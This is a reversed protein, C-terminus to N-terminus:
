NNQKKIKEWEEKQQRIQEQQKAKYQLWEPPYYCEPMGIEGLQEGIALLIEYEEITSPLVEKVRPYGHGMGGYMIVGLVIEPNLTFIEVKTKNESISDLHIHFNASYRLPKGRKYYIKSDISSISSLIADNVNKLEKFVYGGYYYDDRDNFYLLGKIKYTENAKKLASKVQEISAEFIYSTPNPNALEKQSYCGVLTITLILCTM